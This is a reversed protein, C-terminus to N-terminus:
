AASSTAAVRLEQAANLWDDIDHGHECGRACYLEFARRAIHDAISETFLNTASEEVPMTVVNDVTRKVSKVM